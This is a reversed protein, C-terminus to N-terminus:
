RSTRRGEAPPESGDGDVYRRVDDLGVSGKILFGIAGLRMAEERLHCDDNATFMVVRVHRTTPGSRLLRLVGLGDLRPMMYDLFV